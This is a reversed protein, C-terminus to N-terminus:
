DSAGEVSKRLRRQLVEDAAAWAFVAEALSRAVAERGEPSLLRDLDQASSLFGLEVLASPTDPATLVRFGAARLSRGPLVESEAALAEALAAGLAASRADTRRRSLDVLVRAVDGAEGAMPAGGLAGARDPAKEVAEAGAKSAAESLVYVSAGAAAGRELADAHLSLLADGRAARAFRVRDGLSVFRDEERTLLARHGPRADILTKLARAYDLVLDKERVDGAIAGPDAGGHGPDIVILVEAELRPPPPAAVRAGEPWGVAAAFEARSAAEIRVRVRVGGEATPESLAEAALAPSALDLVVRAAGERPAGVRAGGILAGDGVLPGGRSVATGARWAVGDLDVVLRPPADLAFVRFAAPATLEIAIEAAGWRGEIRAATA